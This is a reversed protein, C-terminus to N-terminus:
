EDLPAKYFSRRYTDLVTMGSMFNGMFTLTQPLVEEVAKKQRDRGVRLTKIANMEDLGHILREYDGSASGFYGPSPAIRFHPAGILVATLDVAVKQDWETWEQPRKVDRTLTQLLQYFTASDVYSATM